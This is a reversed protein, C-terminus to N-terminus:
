VNYCVEGLYKRLVENLVKGIKLDESVNFSFLPKKFVPADDNIGEVSVILTLNTSLPNPTGQDTAVVTVEIAANDTENESIIHLDVLRNIDVSQKLTVLGTNRNITFFQTQKEDGKISYMLSANNGEDIDKAVLLAVVSGTPSKEVIYSQAEKFDATCNSEMCFLPYNDNVDLIVVRVTQSSSLQPDGHDIAIVTLTYSPRTERDLPQLTSLIGDDTINFLSDTESIYFDNVIM